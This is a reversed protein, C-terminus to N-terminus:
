RARLRELLGRPAPKRLVAVLDATDYPKEIVTGLEAINEPIDGPAGTAFVIRPEHGGLQDILEAIAWGDSRDSLHVDLVIADVPKEADRLAALAAESTQLLQVREAGADSLADELALALVADDEVVIVHGLARASKRKAKLAM